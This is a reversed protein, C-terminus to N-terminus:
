RRRALGLAVAEEWLEERVRPHAAQEILHRAQTREDHGFVDAVGQETVVATHQFSTVPEDVLAVVTSVDAKPHWSRLAMLAQGGVSHLAGVIFDTQGGFGSHIRAQIRSANAQGFLDVQLATNISTMARNAAIRGPANTTETRLVQVRPNRDVWAYLRQTGFLFSATLPAGPDLAGAEDLTMVGDSFMESWVGLGRRAALGPLTADPVMGIGLQLTAGDGIRAAVLEGIRNAADDPPATTAEDLPADAEFAYDVDDPDLLGDGYTWPMNANVQAIVLGGRARCASIAAPLVNVEVGLSLKGDQPPSVTVCVVDPPLTTVFLRPVLSLRAPVYALTPSRRMGPGVFPTEHVVEPRTPIGPHANLMFLRYAPVCGDVLDLLQRPAAGNGGAVVRPLVPLTPLGQLVQSLDSETVTRM